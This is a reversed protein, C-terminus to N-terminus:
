SDPRPGPDGTKVILVDVDREKSVPGGISVLSSVIRGVNESGIVVMSVNRDRIIRRIRTAITGVTAYRDVTSSNFTISPDIRKVSATLNARIRDLTHPESDDIWGKDLAYRRNGLPIVTVATISVDMARGLESARALAANSLPSHDFPVLYGM